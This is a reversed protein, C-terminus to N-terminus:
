GEMLEEKLIEFLKRHGMENPHIGDSSLNQMEMTDLINLFAIQKKICCEKIKQNYKGINKNFYSENHNWSIPVTYKENVRTLGIFLINRTYIKCIDIIEEINNEFTEIDIKNKEIDNLYLADNIGISIIVTNPNRSECENKIRKILDSTTESPIGLNYVIDENNKNQCYIALRNVWGAKEKDWAGWVISDGFVCINGQIKTKKM